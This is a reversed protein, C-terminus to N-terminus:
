PSWFFRAYIYAITESLMSRVGESSQWWSESDYDLPAIAIVGVKFKPELVQKFILWSRRTHPGYSFLNLSNVELDSSSLWDRLAVASYYTRDKIVKPGPVAILQDPNFDLAKFTAASLEAFTKYEALYFGLSLPLGTTIVKKYSNKEFEAIAAEVGYDPLWGEVVLIDAQPLPANVALFSYLNNCIVLSSTILSLLLVGWGRWTLTWRERRFVLPPIKM